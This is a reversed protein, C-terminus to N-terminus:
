AGERLFDRVHEAGFLGRAYAERIAGLLPTPGHMLLLEYLTEVDGKWTQPRAHIVETLLDVAPQGLEFLQQRKLYLKGRDGSVAALLDARHDALYSANGTEPYRPHRADFIRAVIRVRHPYLFLTGPMGISKPPMSYRIGEHEVMATPGVTIPFRLPYESSSYPLPRLRRREEVLLVAPIVRTARSPREENIEKHWEALQGELDERDEFRRVKFFSGKVWKVLNEVSGKQEPSEPWCLEAAFRFDIAMQAFTPNWEIEPGRHSHAITKPNDFVCALPVGGFFELSEIHARVLAEVRENPVLIVKSTRSRKLRSAYFHIRESTGNRYSVLTQGFDHQSFEGDVGEFRVMPAKTDPRLKTVLEYVASKGGDYGILRLQRLVEHTPVDANEGLIEVVKATFKVVTSPRGPGKVNSTPREQASVVPAERVIRQVGRRSVGSLRAIQRESMGANKLVQVEHRKLPDFM